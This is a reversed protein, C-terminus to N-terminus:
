AAEKQETRKVLEYGLAAAADRIHDAGWKEYNAPNQGMRKLMEARILCDAAHRAFYGANWLPCESLTSNMTLGGAQAM